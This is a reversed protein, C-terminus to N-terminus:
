VHARGIQAHLLLPDTGNAYWWNARAWFSPSDSALPVGRAVVEDSLASTFAFFGFALVFLWDRTRERLAIM